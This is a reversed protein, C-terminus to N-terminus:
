HAESAAVEVVAAASHAAAAAVVAAAVVAAAVAVATSAVNFAMRFPTERRLTSRTCNVSLLNGFALAACATAEIRARRTAISTDSESESASEPRCLTSRCRAPTGKMDTFVWHRRWPNITPSACKTPSVFMKLTFYVIWDSNLLSFVARTM